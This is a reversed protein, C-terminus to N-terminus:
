GEVAFNESIVYLMPIVIFVEIIVPIILVTSTFGFDWLLGVIISAYLRSLSSISGDLGYLKGRSETGVVEWFMTIFPTFAAGGIGGIGIGLISALILYEFSPSYILIIVGLCYFLTFLYYAKKRGFRDALKGVPVQSVLSTFIAITTLIGLKFADVGKFEVLWLPLFLVSSYQFGDRLLRVVIWLILDRKGRIFDRYGYVISNLNLTFNRIESSKSLYIEEFFIYIVIFISIFIIISIYYLPRIGYVNIGGFYNVIFAALLPASVQLLGWFIRSFGMITVREEPKTFSVFIMDAIPIQRVVQTYMLFAPILMIWNNAFIFFLMAFIDFFLGCLIIKKLSYFEMIFGMFISFLSALFAGLFNIFGIDFGSAGLLSLFLVNYQSLMQISFYYIGEVLITMKVRKDLRKFM